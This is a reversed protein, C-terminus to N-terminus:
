DTLWCGAVCGYGGVRLPQEFNFEMVPLANPLLDDRLTTWTVGDESILLSTAAADPSWWRARCV